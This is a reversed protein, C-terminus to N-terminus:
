LNNKEENKLLKNEYRRALRLFISHAAQKAIIYGAVGDRFGQKIFYCEIFKIFPKVFLNLKYFKKNQEEDRNALLYSYKLNTLTHDELSDFVFHELPNLFHAQQSNGIVKEHISDLSWQFNKKNFLRGQFDPYWGGHWIWEGLYYSVRPLRYLVSPELSNFKEIIEEKLEDSVREDADLCLVWDYNTQTVAWNKQEGFGMWEKKLVQAGTSQAIECTKDTSGSDVVIVESVFPASEICQQIHSEENKTIIVLSIPLKM